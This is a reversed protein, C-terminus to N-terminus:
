NNIQSEINSIQQDIIMLDHDVRSGDQYASKMDNLHSCMCKNGPKVDNRPHINALANNIASIKDNAYSERDNLISQKRLLLENLLDQLNEEGM